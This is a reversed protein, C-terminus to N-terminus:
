GARLLFVAGVLAAVAAGLSILRKRDDRMPLLELLMVRAGSCLHVTLLVVLGWEAALFVPNRAVSLFRDLAADSELALGLALFHAPLFLVLALGSVRHAVFAWFGPHNRAPRIM